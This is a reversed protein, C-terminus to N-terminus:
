AAIPYTLTAAIQVTVNTAGDLIEAPIIAKGNTWRGEPELDHWGEALAPHDLPIDRGAITIAAIKVGLRRCGSPDPTLLGPIAHRSQHHRRRGRHAGRGPRRRVGVRTNQQGAYALPRLFKQAPSRAM